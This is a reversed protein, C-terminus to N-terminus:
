TGKQVSAIRSRPGRRDKLVFESAKTKAKAKLKLDKHVNKVTM